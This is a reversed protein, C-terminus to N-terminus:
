SFGRMTGAARQFRGRRLLCWVRRRKRFTRTAISLQSPPEDLQKGVISSVLVTASLQDCVLRWLSALTRTRTKSTQSARTAPRIRNDTAKAVHASVWVGRVCHTHAHVVAFM